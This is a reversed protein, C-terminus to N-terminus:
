QKEPAVVQISRVQRGSVRLIVSMGAKLDSLQGKRKEGTPGDRFFVRAGEIVTFPQSWKSSRLTLTRFDADVEAITGTPDAPHPRTHGKPPKPRTPRSPWHHHGAALQGATLLVAVMLAAVVALRARAM